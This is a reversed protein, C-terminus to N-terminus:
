TEVIQLDDFALAREDSRNCTILLANAKELALRPNVKKFCDTKFRITNLMTKTAFPHPYPRPLGGVLDVDVFATIGNADEIGLQFGSANQPVFGQQQVVEAARIWIERKTLDKGGLESRFLRGTGGPKAVM